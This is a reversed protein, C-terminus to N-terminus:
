STKYPVNKDTDTGTLITWMEPIPFLGKTVLQNPSNYLVTINRPGHRQKGVMQEKSIWRPGERERGKSTGMFMGYHAKCLGLVSKRRCGMTLGIGHLCHGGERQLANLFSNRETVWRPPKGWSLCQHEEEPPGRATDWCAGLRLLNSTKRVWCREGAGWRPKTHAWQGGM